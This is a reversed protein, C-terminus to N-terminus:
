KVTTWRPQGNVDLRVRYSGTKNEVVEQVVGSVGSKQTTFQSGVTPITKSMKSGIGGWLSQKTENNNVVKTTDGNYRIGGVNDVGKAM